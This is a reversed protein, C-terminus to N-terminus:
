GVGFGALRNKLRLEEDIGFGNACVIIRRDLPAWLESMDDLAIWRDRDLGQADLFALAERRRIGPPMSTGDGFVPTEGLIRSRIDDAFRATMEDVTRHMRWASCIVIRVDQFARVVAELRPLDVFLQAETCYEPHLTGDFDLFIPFISPSDITSPTMRRETPRVM